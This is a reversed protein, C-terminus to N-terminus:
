VPLPPTCAAGRGGASHYIGTRVADQLMNQQAWLQSYYRRAANRRCFAVCSQRSSRFYEAASDAETKSTFADAADPM